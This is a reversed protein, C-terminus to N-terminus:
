LHEESGLLSPRLESPQPLKKLGRTERRNFRRKKKVPKTVTTRRLSYQQGGNLDDVQDEEESEGSTYSDSKQDQGGEELSAKREKHREDVRREIEQQLGRDVRQQQRILLLAAERQKLRGEQCKFIKHRSAQRSARAEGRLVDTIPTGSRAEELINM